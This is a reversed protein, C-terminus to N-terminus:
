AQKRKAREHDEKRSASGFACSWDGFLGLERAKRMGDILYLWAAHPMTGRVFNCRKCAAVVNGKTHGGKNDIRDLTIRTATEGCYSCGTSILNQIYELTLDNKIGRRLDMARADKWIYKAVFNPDQRERKQKEDIHHYRKASCRKCFNITRGDVTDKKRYFEAIPKVELCDICRKSVPVDNASLVTNNKSWHRSRLGKETAKRSWTM